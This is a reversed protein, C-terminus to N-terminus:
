RSVQFGLEESLYAIPLTESSLAHWEIVPHADLFFSVAERSGSSEVLEHGAFAEPTAMFRRLEELNRGQDAGNTMLIKDWEASAPDLYDPLFERPANFHYLHLLEATSIDPFSEARSRRPVATSFSGLNQSEAVYSGESADM